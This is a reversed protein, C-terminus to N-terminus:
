PVGYSIRYISGVAPANINYTGFYLAGDPGEVLPLLPIDTRLFWSSEASFGGAGDDSLEVRQIGIQLAYQWAGFNTTYLDGRYLRPFREGTYFTLGNVSAHAQFIEAPAETGECNAGGGNGYCDPWGYDAGEVILNLEEPPENQGLDDRGNETAFLQGTDPHFAIDFPNRLGTAIVEGAGSTPDFRMITASRADVEVCANCTSGVGMYLMGDAGFELNNNKHLGIPLDSVISEYEDASLDGDIDRAITIKSDQSIYVDGNEPHVAVGLPINFGFAYQQEFDARGDDDTDDFVWVEGVHNTAWLRGQADFTLGTPRPLRAYEIVSFGPPLRAGELEIIVESPPDPEPATTATPPPPTDTPPLPIDTPPIETPPVDTSPLATEDTLSTPAATITAPESTPIDTPAPEDTPVTAETPIATDGECAVLWVCLMLFFLRKM